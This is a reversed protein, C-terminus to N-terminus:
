VSLIFSITSAEAIRPAEANVVFVGATLTHYSFDNNSFVVYSVDINEQLCNRWDVASLAATPFGRRLNTGHIELSSSGAGPFAVEPTAPPSAIQIATSSFPLTKARPSLHGGILWGRENPFTASPAMWSGTSPVM